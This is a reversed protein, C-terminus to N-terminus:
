TPTVRGPGATLRGATIAVQLVFGDRPDTPDWGTIDAV